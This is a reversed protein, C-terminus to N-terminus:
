MFWATRPPPAKNGPHLRNQAAGPAAPPLQAGVVHHQVRDVVGGALVTLRHLQAAQFVIQQLKQHAVAARREVAVHHILADPAADGVGFTQAGNVGVNGTQAFFSPQVSLISVTYLIPYRNFFSSQFILPLETPRAHGARLRAMAARKDKADYPPTKVGGRPTSSAAGWVM